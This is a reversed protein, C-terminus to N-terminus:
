KWWCRTVVPSVEGYKIEFWEVHWGEDEVHLVEDSNARQEDLWLVLQDRRREHNEAEPWGENSGSPPIFFSQYNNIGAKSIPTPDLKLWAAIEHARRLDKECWSTFVMAFHITTSM